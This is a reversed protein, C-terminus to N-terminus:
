RYPHDCILTARQGNGIGPWDRRVGAAVISVRGSSGNEPPLDRWSARKPRIKGFCSQILRRRHRRVPARLMFPLRSAPGFLELPLGNMCEPGLATLRPPKSPAAIASGFHQPPRIPMAGVALERPSASLPMRTSTRGNEVGSQPCSSFGRKLSDFLHSSVPRPWEHTPPSDAFARLARV